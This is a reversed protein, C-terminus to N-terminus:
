APPSGTAGPSRAQDLRGAIPESAGAAHEARRIAHIVDGMGATDRELVHLMRAVKRTGELNEPIAPGFRHRAADEAYHIRAIPRARRIAIVCDEPLADPDHELMLRLGMSPGRNVGMHCHVLVKAGDTQMARHYAAVGADFWADSQPGGDDHTGLNWYTIEPALELLLGEDDWEERCDIIHTIGTARYEAVQRTAEDRDPHLDGSLVLWPEV